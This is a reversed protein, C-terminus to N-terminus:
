FDLTCHICGPRPSGTMCAGGDSSTLFELKDQFLKIKREAAEIEARYKQEAQFNAALERRNELAVQRLGLNESFFRYFKREYQHVLEEITM